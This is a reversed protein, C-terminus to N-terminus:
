IIKSTHQSPRQVSEKPSECNWPWPEQSTHWTARLDEGIIGWFKGPWPTTHTSLLLFTLFDFKARWCSVNYFRTHHKFLTHRMHGINKILCSFTHPGITAMELEVFLKPQKSHAPFQRMENVITFWMHAWKMNQLQLGSAFTRLCRFISEWRKLHPWVIREWIM